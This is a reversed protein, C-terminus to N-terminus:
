LFQYRWRTQQSLALLGRTGRAISWRLGRNLRGSSRGRIYYRRLEEAGGLALVAGEMLAARRLYPVDTMSFAVIAPASERRRLQAMTGVAGLGAIALNVVAVDFDLSCTVVEDGHAAELVVSFRDDHIIAWRILSRVESNGVAVMVRVGM